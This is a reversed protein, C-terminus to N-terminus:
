VGKGNKNSNTFYTRKESPSLEKLKEEFEKYKETEGYIFKAEHAYQEQLPLISSNNFINLNYIDKGSVYEDM